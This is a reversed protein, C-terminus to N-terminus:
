TAMKGSEKTAASDPELSQLRHRLTCYPCAHPSALDARAIMCELRGAMVLSCVAVIASLNLEIGVNVGVLVLVLVLVGLPLSLDDLESASHVGHTLRRRSLRPQQMLRTLLPLETHFPSQSAPTQLSLIVKRLGVTM